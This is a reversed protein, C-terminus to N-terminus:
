PQVFHIWIIKMVLQLRYIDHIDKTYRNLPIVYLIFTNNKFYIFHPTPFTFRVHTVTSAPMNPM